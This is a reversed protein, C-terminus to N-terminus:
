LDTTRLPMDLYLLEDVGKIKFFFPSNLNNVKIEVVRGKAIKLFDAFHKYNFCIELVEGSYSELTVEEKAEGHTSHRAFLFMSNIKPDPIWMKIKNTDQDAIVSLTEIAKLFSDAKVELRNNLDKPLFDKYNPFKGSILESFIYINNVKFFILNEELSLLLESSDDISLLLTRFINEPVIASVSFNGVKSLYKKYNASLRKGDTAVFSIKDDDEEIYIGKYVYKISTEDAVSFITTEVLEAFDSTAITMYKNWDFEKHVPFISADTGNLKFIVSRKDVDAPYINILNEPEKEGDKELIITNSDLKRVVELLKKSNITIEGSTEVNASLDIKVGSEGNYTMLIIKGDEAITKLYVNYLVSLPSKVNRINNDAITLYKLFVDRDVSFKM